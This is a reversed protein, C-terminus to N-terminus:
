RDGGPVGTSQQTPLYSLARMSAAGAAARAATDAIIRQQHAARARLASLLAHQGAPIGSLPALAVVDAVVARRVAGSAAHGDRDTNAAQELCRGLQEDRGALTSLEAGAVGTLRGHGGALRGALDTMQRRGAHLRQGAGALQAGAGAATPGVSAPPDAFLTHARDLLEGVQRVVADIAVAGTHSLASPADDALKRRRAPRDGRHSANGNRTTSARFTANIM